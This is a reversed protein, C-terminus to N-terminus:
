SKLSTGCNHCYNKGLSLNNCAPCRLKIGCQGCYRWGAQQMHGCAPCTNQPQPPVLLLLGQTSALQVAQGLPNQGNGQMPQNAHM